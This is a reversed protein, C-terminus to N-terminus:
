PATVARKYLVNGLQRADDGNDDDKAQKTGPNLFFFNM